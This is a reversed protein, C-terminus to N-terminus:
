WYISEWTLSLVTEGVMKDKVHSDGYRPFVTKINLRPGSTCKHVPYDYTQSIAQQWSAALSDMKMLASRDSILILNYCYEIHIEKYHMNENWFISQYSRTFVTKPIHCYLTSLIFVRHCLLIMSSSFYYRLVELYFFTNVGKYSSFNNILWIYNSCRRDVSSWSCRWEWSLVQNWHISCLCSCSSAFFM